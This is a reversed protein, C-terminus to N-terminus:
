TEACFRNLSNGSNEKSKEIDVQSVPDEELEWGVGLRETRKKGSAAVAAVVILAQELEKQLTERGHSSESVDGHGM